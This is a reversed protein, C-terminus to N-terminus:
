FIRETKGHLFFGHGSSNRCTLGTRRSECRFGRATWTRGYHLVPGTAAINGEVWYVRAKGTTTMGWTRQGRTGWTKERWFDVCSLTPHGKFPGVAGPNDLECDIGPNGPTRFFRGHMSGTSSDQRAAAPTGQAGSAFATALVVAGLGSVLWKMGPVYM